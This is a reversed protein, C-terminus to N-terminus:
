EAIRVHAVGPSKLHKLAQNAYKILQEIDQNEGRHALHIMIARTWRAFRATDVETKVPLCALIARKDAGKHFHLYSAVKLIQHSVPMLDPESVHTAIEGHTPCRSYRGLLDILPELSACLM